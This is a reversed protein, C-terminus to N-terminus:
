EIATEGPRGTTVGGRAQGRRRGGRHVAAPFLRRPLRHHHRSRGRQRHHPPGSADAAARSQPTPQAPRPPPRHGRHQREAPRYLLAAACLHQGVRPSPPCACLCTPPLCAPLRAAPPPASSGTTDAVVNGLAACALGSLGLKAGLSSEIADGAVLMISNDLFGFVFCPLASLLGLKGLQAWSPPGSGHGSMQTLLTPGRRRWWLAFEEADISGDRDSDAEMALSRADIPSEAELRRGISESLLKFSAAPLAKVLADADSPNRISSADSLGRSAAAARCLHRCAPRARALSPLMYSPLM